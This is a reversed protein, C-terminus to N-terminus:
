GQEQPAPGRTTDLGPVAPLRVASGGQAAQYIAEM